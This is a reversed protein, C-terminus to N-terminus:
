MLCNNCWNIDKFTDENILFICILSFLCVRENAPTKYCNALTALMLNPLVASSGWTECIGCMVNRMRLLSWVDCLMEQRQNFYGCQLDHMGRIHIRAWLHWLGALLQLGCDTLWEMVLRNFYGSRVAHTWSNFHVRAFVCVWVCHPPAASDLHGHQGFTESRTTKETRFTM